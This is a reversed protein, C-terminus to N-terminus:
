IGEPLVSMNRVGAEIQRELLRLGDPSNLVRFDLRLVGISITGKQLGVSTEWREFQPVKEDLDETFPQVILGARTGTSICSCVVQYFNEADLKHKKTQAETGLRGVYKSDSVLIPCMSESCFLIDDPRVCRSGNGLGPGFRKVFEWTSQAQTKIGIRSSVRRYLYSVIAEYCEHMVAVVGCIRKDSKIYSVSRRRARLFEQALEFPERYISMGPPLPRLMPFRFSDSSEVQPLRDLAAKLSIKTERTRALRQFEIVAWRLLHIYENNKTFESFACSVKHQRTPSKILQKHLLIRGRVFSLERDIRQYALLPHSELAKLLSLAFLRAFPDVFRSTLWAASLTGPLIVMRGTGSSLVLANSLRSFWHEEGMFKPRITVSVPGLNLFGSIGCFRIQRRYPDLQIPLKDSLADASVILRNCVSVAKELFQIGDDRLEPPLSYWHNEKCEMTSILSHSNM